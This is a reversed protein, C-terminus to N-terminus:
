VSGFESDALRHVELKLPRIKSFFHHWLWKKWRWGPKPIQFYEGLDVMSFIDKHLFLFLTLSSSCQVLNLRQINLCPSPSLLYLTLLDEETWLLLLVQMLTIAFNWRTSIWCIDEFTNVVALVVKVCQVCLVVNQSTGFSHRDTQKFIKKKIEEAKRDHRM